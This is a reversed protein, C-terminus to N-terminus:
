HLYTNNYTYSFIYNYKGSMGVTKDHLEYAKFMHTM